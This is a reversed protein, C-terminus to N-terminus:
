TSHYIDRARASERERERECLCECECEGYSGVARAARSDVDFQCSLAAGADNAARSSAPRRPSNSVGSPAM